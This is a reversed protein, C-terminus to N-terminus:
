KLYSGILPLVDDPHQGTFEKVGPGGSTYVKSGYERMFRELDGHNHGHFLGAKFANQLKFLLREQSLIHGYHYGKVDDCQFLNGLSNTLEEFGSHMTPEGGVIEMRKIRGFMKGAWRLEDLPLEREVVNPNRGVMQHQVTCNPCRRQCVRTIPIGIRNVVRGQAFKM